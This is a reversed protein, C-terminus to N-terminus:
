FWNNGSEQASDQNSDTINSNSLNANLLIKSYAIETEQKKLSNTRGLKSNLENRERELDGIRNQKEYLCELSAKELGHWANVEKRLGEVETEVIGSEVLFLEDGLM